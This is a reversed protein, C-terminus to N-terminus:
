KAIGSFVDLVRLFAIFRMLNWLMDRVGEVDGRKVSTVHCSDYARVMVAAAAVPLLLLLLLLSLAYKM